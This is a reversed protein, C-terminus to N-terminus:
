QQNQQQPPPVSSQGEPEDLQDVTEVPNQEESLSSFANSGTAADIDGNEDDEGTKNYVTPYRAFCEQMTKFTDYCDSGKPEADSFNSLFLILYFIM